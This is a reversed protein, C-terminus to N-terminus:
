MVADRELQDSKDYCDTYVSLQPLASGPPM